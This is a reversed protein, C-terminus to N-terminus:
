QDGLDALDELLDLLETMRAKGYQEELQEYIANSRPIFRSLSEKADPSISMHFGRKDDPNPMREVHGDQELSRLIRSLSPMLIGAREAIETPDLPSEEDLVRMVRWQQDTFGADRVLPRFRAMVTERARLLAIPLSRATVRPASVRARRASLRAGKNPRAQTEIKV